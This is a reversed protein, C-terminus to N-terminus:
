SFTNTQINGDGIQVGKSGTFTVNYKGAKAGAQDILDMLAKATAVLEADNGADVQKLTETLPAEWVTPNSDYQALAV